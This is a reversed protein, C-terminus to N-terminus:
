QADKRYELQKLVDAVQVTLQDRLHLGALELINLIVDSVWNEYVDIDAYDSASPNFVADTGVVEYTWKPPIPRRYYHLEVEAIATPFLHIETGFIKCQPYTLSPAVIGTTYAAYSGIPIEPVVSGDVFLFDNPLFSLDEPFTTKGATVTLTVPVLYRAIATELEHVDIGGRNIRKKNLANRYENIYNSVVTIQAMPALVNFREPSLVGISNKNLITQVTQYIFNIRDM